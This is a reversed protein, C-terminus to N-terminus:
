RQYRSLPKGKRLWEAKRVDLEDLFADLSVRQIRIDGRCSSRHSEFYHFRDLSFNIEYWYTPEDIAHIKVDSVYANHFRPIVRDAWGDELRYGRQQIIANFALMAATHQLQVNGRYTEAIQQALHNTM